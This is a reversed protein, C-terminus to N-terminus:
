LLLCWTSAAINYIDLVLQGYSISREKERIKFVLYLDDQTSKVTPRTQLREHILRSHARTQAEVTFERRLKSLHLFTVEISRQRAGAIFKEPKTQQQPIAGRVFVIRRSHPGINKNREEHQSGNHSRMQNRLLLLM